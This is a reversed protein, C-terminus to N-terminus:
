LSSEAHDERATGGWPWAQETYVEGDGAVVACEGSGLIRSWYQAKERSMGWLRAFLGM